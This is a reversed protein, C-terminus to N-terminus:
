PRLGAWKRFVKLCLSKAMQLRPTQPEFGEPRVVGEMEARLARGTTWRSNAPAPSVRTLKTRQKVPLHPRDGHRFGLVLQSLYAAPRARFASAAHHRLLQRKIVLRQQLGEFRLGMRKELVDHFFGLPAATGRTDNRRM